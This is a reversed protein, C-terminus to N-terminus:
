IQNIGPLGCVRVNGTHPQALDDCFVQADEVITQGLALICFTYEIALNHSNFFEVLNPVVELDPSTWLIKHNAEVGGGM